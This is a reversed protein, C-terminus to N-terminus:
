GSYGSYGLAWCVRRIQADTEFGPVECTIGTGYTLIRWRGDTWGLLFQEHEYCHRIGPQCVSEDPVAFVQAYDNRCRKVDARVIRLEAAENDMAQKLVPLFVQAGCPAWEATTSAETAGTETTAAAATTPQTTSTSASTAPAGAATTSNPSDAGCGALVFALALVATTQLPHIHVRLSGALAKM